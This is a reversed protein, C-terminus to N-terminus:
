MMIYMGRVGPLGLINQEGMMCNQRRGPSCSGAVCGGIQLRKTYMSSTSVRLMSSSARLCLSPMITGELFGDKNSKPDFVLAPPRLNEPLSPVTFCLSSLRLEEPASVSTRIKNKRRECMTSVFRELSRLVYGHSANIGAWHFERKDVRGMRVVGFVVREYM